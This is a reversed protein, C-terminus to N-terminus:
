LIAELAYVLPLKDALHKIRFKGAEVEEVHNFCPYPSYDFERFASITFGQNLLATFVESLSHNWSISKNELGQGGDTYTGQTLEEIPGTNFYSYAVHEFDDDFMWVAPHFEVFVLRGGPALMQRIVGAWMDLDPLWGITGYSTFVIDFKDFVFKPTDYVDCCVFHAKAKTSTALEKAARIAVESIDIGTVRAGMRALSISDQGFHCQLHLVNKGKVDALLDREIENLTNRGALFSANDYFESNLHVATKADWLTKNISKYDHKM